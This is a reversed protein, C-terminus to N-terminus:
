HLPDAGAGIPAAPFPSTRSAPQHRKHFSRLRDHRHVTITHPPLPGAAGGSGWIRPAEPGETSAGPAAPSSNPAPSSTAPRSPRKSPPRTPSAQPRSPLGSRPCPTRTM